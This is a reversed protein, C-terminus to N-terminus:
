SLDVEQLQSEKCLSLKATEGLIGKIVSGGPRNALRRCVPVSVSFIEKHRLWSRCNPPPIIELYSTIRGSDQM